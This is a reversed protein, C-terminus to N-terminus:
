IIEGPGHRPQDLGQLLPQRGSGGHHGDRRLLHRIRWHRRSCSSGVMRIAMARSAPQESAPQAVVVLKAGGGTSTLDSIVLLLRERSQRVVPLTPLAIGALTSPAWFSISLKM